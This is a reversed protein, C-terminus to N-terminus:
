SMKVYVDVRDAPDEYAGGMAHLDIISSSVGADILLQRITMARKLSLRRADMGKDGLKGGYAYVEVRQGGGDMAINLNGALKKIGDMAAPVLDTADKRFKIQGYRTLTAPITDEASPATPAKSASPAVTALKQVPKTQQPTQRQPGMPTTPVGFTFPITSDSSSATEQPPVAEVPKQKAPAKKAVKPQPVNVPEPVYSPEPASAMMEAPPTEEPKPARQVVVKRKAPMHLKIPADKDGPERLRPVIRGYKGGPYLLLQGNQVGQPNVQVDEGPYMQALALSPAAFAIIAAVTLIRLFPMTRAAENRSLVMSIRLAGRM